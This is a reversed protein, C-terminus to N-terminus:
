SCNLSKECSTGIMGGICANEKGAIIVRFLPQAEYIDIQFIVFFLFLNLPVYGAAIQCDWASQANKAEPSSEDLAM